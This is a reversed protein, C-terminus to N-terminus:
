AQKRVAAVAKIEIVLEPRALAAVGLITWAPFDSKIFREKVARFDALQEGVNVHYSVLEVLDTFDLGLHGLIAELRGFALEIQEKPTEGISGDARMGIQGAIFALGNATVAPAYQFLDFVRNSGFAPDNDPLRLREIHSM